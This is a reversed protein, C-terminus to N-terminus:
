AMHLIMYAVERQYGYQSEAYIYAVPWLIWWLFDFSSSFYPNTANAIMGMLCGALLSVYSTYSSRSKKAGSICGLIISMLAAAYFGFGVMGSQFLIAHYSLEYAWTFDVNRLAGKASAGAGSGWVPSNLFGRILEESQGARDNYENGGALVAKFREMISGVNLYGRSILVTGALLVVIGILLMRKRNAGRFRRQISRPHIAALLMIFVATFPVSAWIIRRGTLFAALTILLLSCLQFVSERKKRSATTMYSVFAMPLIPILMSGNTNTLHVYGEHQGFNTTYDFAYFLSKPWIGISVLFYIITYLACITGSIIISQNIWEAEEVSRISFFLALLLVVYTVTFNFNEIIGPNGNLIGVTIFVAAFSFWCVIFRKVYKSKSHSFGFQNKMIKYIMIAAIFFVKVAQLQRPMFIMLFFLLFWLIKLVSNQRIKM